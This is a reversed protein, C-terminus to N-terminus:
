RNGYIPNKTVVFPNRFHTFVRSSNGIRKAKDESVEHFKRKVGNSFIVFIEESQGIDMLVEHIPAFM